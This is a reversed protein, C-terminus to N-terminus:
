VNYNCSYMNVYQGSAPVNSLSYNACVSNTIKNLCVRSVNNFTCNLNYNIGGTIARTIFYIKNYNDYNVDVYCYNVCTCTQGNSLGPPLTTQAMNYIYTTNGVAASITAGTTLYACSSLAYAININDSSQAYDTFYLRFSQNETMTKSVCLKSYYWSDVCNDCAACVKTPISMYVCASAIPITTTTTTTTIDLSTKKSLVTGLTPSFGIANSTGTIQLMACGQYIGNTNTNITSMAYCVIDGSQINITYPTTNNQNIWGCKCVGNCYLTISNTTNYINCTNVAFKLDVSEGSSLAPLISVCKPTSAASSHTSGDNITKINGCLSLTKTLLTTTGVQTPTTVNFDYYVGINDIIKISYQTNPLLCGFITTVGSQEVAKEQLLCTTNNCYLETHFPSTNGSIKFRIDAM